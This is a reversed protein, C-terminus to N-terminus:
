PPASYRAQWAILAGLVAAVVFTLAVGVICGARPRRRREAEDPEDASSRPSPSSLADLLLGLLDWM